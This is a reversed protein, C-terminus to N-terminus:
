ALFKILTASGIHGLKINKKDKLIEKATKVDPALVLAEGINTRSGLWGNGYKIKYLKNKMRDTYTCKLFGCCFDKM